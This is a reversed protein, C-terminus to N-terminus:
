ANSEAELDIDMIFFAKLVNIGNRERFHVSSNSVPNLFMIENNENYKFDIRTVGSNSTIIINISPVNDTREIIEDPVNM